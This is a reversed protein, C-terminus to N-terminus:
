RGGPPGEGPAVMSAGSDGGPPAPRRPPGPEAGRWRGPRGYTGGTCWSSSDPAVPRRATATVYGRTALARDGEPSLSRRAVTATSARVPRKPLRLWRERRRREEIDDAATTHADVSHSLKLIGSHVFFFKSSSRSTLGRSAGICHRNARSARRDGSSPTLRKVYSGSARM